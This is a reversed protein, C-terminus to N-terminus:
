GSGDFDDVVKPCQWSNDELARDLLINAPDRRLISKSIRREGGAQIFALALARDLLPDNSSDTRSRIIQMCVDPSSSALRQGALAVLQVNSSKELWSEMVLRLDETLWNTPVALALQAKVWDLASWATEFYDVLWESLAGFGPGDKWFEGWTAAARLYRGLSDAAHPIAKANSRWEDQRDFSNSDALSVLAARLWPRPTSYIDSLAVSELEILRDLDRADEPDLTSEGSYDDQVSRWQVRVRNVKELVIEDIVEDSSALRSKSANL